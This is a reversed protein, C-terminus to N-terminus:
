TPSLLTVIRVKGNGANFDSALESFTKINKLGIPQGAAIWLHPFALLALVSWLLIRYSM